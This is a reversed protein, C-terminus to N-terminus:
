DFEIGYERGSHQLWKVLYESFSRRVIVDFTPSDDVLAILAVAKGLGSQACSGVEFVDPHFDLTCGKAFLDRTSAGSLRFTINGGSIDNVAAHCSALSEDLCNLLHATRDAPAMVLWEDPGLWFIRQDRDSITNPVVPLSQGLVAEAAKRFTDDQPDGRLNIHGVDRVIEATIRHDSM